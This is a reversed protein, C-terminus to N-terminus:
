PARNGKTILGEKMLAEPPKVRKLGGLSSWSIEGFLSLNEYKNSGPVSFRSSYNSILVTCPTKSVLSTVFVKAM